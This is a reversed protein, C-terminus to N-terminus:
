RGSPTTDIWRMTTGVVTKLLQGFLSKSARFAGYYEVILLLTSVLVRLLGITGYVGIYFGPREEASPLNTRIPSYSQETFTSNIMQIISHGYHHILTSQHPHSFIHTPQHMFSLGYSTATQHRLISSPVEQPYHDAWIKVWVKEGVGLFEFMVALVLVILWLYYSRCLVTLYATEHVFPLRM